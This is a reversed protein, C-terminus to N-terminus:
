ASLFSPPGPGRSTPSRRGSYSPRQVSGLFPCWSRSPRWWRPLIVVCCRPGDVTDWSAQVSSTTFFQAGSNSRARLWTSSRTGRPVLFLSAIGSGWVVLAIPDPAELRRVILNSASWSLAAGLTLLLPLLPAHQQMGLGVVAIGVGGVTAGLVQYLNPREALFIVALFTTFFVQCQMVLSALGAPMGFYLAGFVLTFQLAFATFAYATLLAWHVRPRPLLMMLPLGALLFRLSALLTPAVVDLGIRAAVFNTGWLAMVIIALAIHRLPM